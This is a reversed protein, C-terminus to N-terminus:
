NMVYCLGWLDWIIYIIQTKSMKHRSKKKLKIFDKSASPKINNTKAALLNM